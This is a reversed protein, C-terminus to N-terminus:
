PPMHPGEQRDMLQLFSEAEEYGPRLKLAQSFDARARAPDPKYLLHYAGAFLHARADLPRMAVIREAIEAAEDYMGLQHYEAALFDLRSDCSPDAAIEEQLIEIYWRNKRRRAEPDTAFNHDIRIAAQRLRGGGALISADVTEHVRGRYRYQPRNPFLRVVYDTATTSDPSRNHRELFYGANEGLAILRAIEPASTRDLTEDADLVLIWGGSARAIACNRAAAFDVASFDFAILEAGYAAAISPTRDTSGTDVVILEGALGRVSDLCAPLNREENKVMMCLSLADASHPTATGSVLHISRRSSANEKPGNSAIGKVAAELGRWVSNCV